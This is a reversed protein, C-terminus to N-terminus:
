TYPKKPKDASSPFDLKISPLGLFSRREKIFKDAFLKDKVPVWTRYMADRGGVYDIFEKFEYLYLQGCSTCKKLKLMYDSDDRYIEMTELSNYLVERTLDKNDWLHCNLPLKIEM